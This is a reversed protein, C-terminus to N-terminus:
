FLGGPLRALRLLDNANGKVRLKGSMLAKAPRLTGRLLADLTAADTVASCVAGACEGPEFSIRGGSIRAHVCGEGTIQLEYIGSLGRLAEPPVKRAFAEAASLLESIDM